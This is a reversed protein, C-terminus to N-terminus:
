MPFKIPLRETVPPLVPFPKHPELQYWYATSSYDDSRRNDHGHEITVKISKAFHIPDEVHFRYLSIKGAWKPGEPVVTIGHYLSDYTETPCWAANFYDELGTGHMTPPWTEGDIFIM